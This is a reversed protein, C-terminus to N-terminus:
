DRVLHLVLGAVAEGHAERLPVPECGAVRLAHAQALGRLYRQSHAYRLTPLLDYGAEAECAEV